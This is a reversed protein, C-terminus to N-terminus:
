GEFTIKPGLCLLPKRDSVEFLGQAALSPLFTAIALLNRAVGRKYSIADFSGAGLPVLGHTVFRIDFNGSLRILLWNLLDTRLKINWGLM